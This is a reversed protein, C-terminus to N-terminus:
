NLEFANDVAANFFIGTIGAAVEKTGSAIVEAIDNSQCGVFQFCLGMTALAAFRQIRKFM